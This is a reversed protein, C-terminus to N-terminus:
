NPQPSSSHGANLVDEIKKLEDEWPTLTQKEEFPDRNSSEVDVYVDDKLTMTGIAIPNVLNDLLGPGAATRWTPDSWVKVDFTRGQRFFFNSQKSIQENNKPLPQICAERVNTLTLVLGNEIKQNVIDTLNDSLEVNRASLVANPARLLMHSLHKQNQTGYMYFPTYLKPYSEDRYASNLPFSKVVRQLTVNCPEAQRKRLLTLREQKNNGLKSKM